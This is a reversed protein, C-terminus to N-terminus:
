VDKELEGSVVITSELHGTSINFFSDKKNKTKELIEEHIRVIDPSNPFVFEILNSRVTINKTDKLIEEDSVQPKLKGKIRRLAMAVAEESVEEVLKKEIQPRIQRAIGSINAIDEYLVESLFPSHNIIDETVHSITIM